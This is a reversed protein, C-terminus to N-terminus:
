EESAPRQSSPNLRDVLRDLGGRIMGAYPTDPLGVSAARGADLHRRSAQLDGLRFYDDALNLHLSPLFAAISLSDHHDRAASEPCRLAADLARLDWACEDVLDDQADAMFHALTCEHFPEPDAAIQTWITQFQQRAQAREGRQLAAIAIHIASMVPDITMSLKEAARLDDPL